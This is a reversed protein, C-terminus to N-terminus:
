KIIVICLIFYHKKTFFLIPYPLHSYNVERICMRFCIKPPRFSGGNERLMEKLRPFMLYIIDFRYKLTLYRYGVPDKFYSVPADEFDHEMFVFAIFGNVPSSIQLEM